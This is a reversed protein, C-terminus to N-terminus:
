IPDITSLTASSYQTPKRRTSLNGRGIRIGAFAGCENIERDNVNCLKSVSLSALYCVLFSCPQNLTTV